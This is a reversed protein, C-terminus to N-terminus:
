YGMVEPQEKPIRFSVKERKGKRLVDLKLKSGLKKDRMLYALLESRDMGQKGDVSVIVDGPALAQRGKRNPNKFWNPSRNKVVVGEASDVFSVGAWLWSAYGAVRYRWVWDEAHRWEPDLVMTAAVDPGRRRIDATLPGGEDPFNHLVWQVDAISVLPQGGLSTIEDGAKIGAAAAPSGPEVAKVQAAKTNDFTLGLVHPRPYMWLMSDPVPIKKMIYSDIATRQVEHCHVCGEEEGDKVRKLRKYKRASPTKEAFKWRPKPGTKGALTPGVTAPDDTYAEHLKLAKRMAAKLGALSHNPNSDKRDRKTDPHARGFRGYITRDANMFFVSWSLFPDFQFVSLDVGGMQIQRACVFADTLSLLDSDTPAAL